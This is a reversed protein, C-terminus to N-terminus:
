YFFLFLTKQTHKNKKSFVFVFFYAFFVCFVFFSSFFFYYFIVFFCVFIFIEGKGEGFAELGGSGGRGGGM